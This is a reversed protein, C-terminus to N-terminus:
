SIRHMEPHSYWAAKVQERTIYRGSQEHMEVVADFAAEPSLEHWEIFHLVDGALAWEMRSSVNSSPRGPKGKRQVRMIRAAEIPVTRANDKRRARHVLTGLEELRGALWGALEPPPAKGAKLWAAAQGYARALAERDGAEARDIMAACDAPNVEDGNM